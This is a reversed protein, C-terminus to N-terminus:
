APPLLPVADPDDPEEPEEPDPEETLEPPPVPVDGPVGGVPDGVPVVDPDDPELAAPPGPAANRGGFARLGAAAPPPRPAPVVFVPPPGAVSGYM